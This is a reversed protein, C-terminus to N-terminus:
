PVVGEILLSFKVQKDGKKRGQSDMRFESDSAIDFPMKVATVRTFGPQKRLAILLSNVQQLAKRPSDTYELLVADINASFPSVQEIVTDAGSSDSIAQEKVSWNVGRYSVEPFDKSAQALVHMFGQPTQSYQVQLQDLAEVSYEVDAAEVHLESLEGTRRDYRQRYDQASAKLKPVINTQTNELFFLYAGGCLAICLLFFAFLSLGLSALRHYYIHLNKDHGYHNKPWRQEALHEVFLMDAYEQDDPLSHMLMDKLLTQKNEQEALVKLEVAQPGHGFYHLQMIEGGELLRKNELFRATKSIERLAAQSSNENEDGLAQALRSMKLQGNFYLSHRVSTPVQQSILLHAGRDMSWKKLASEALLPLSHIGALAIKRDNLIDLWPKLLESNSIGSVLVQDDRRDGSQRGQVTIYRHEAARLYKNLLRQHLAKRDKGLVHPVSDLHFDEDIIDVLLRVPKRTHESIYVSFDSFGNESPEFVTCHVVKSASLAFVKLRYGAFFLIHQM